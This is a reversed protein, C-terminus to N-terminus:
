LSSPVCRRGLVSIRHTYRLPSVKGPQPVKFSYTAAQLEITSLPLPYQWCFAIARITNTYRQVRKRSDVEQVM